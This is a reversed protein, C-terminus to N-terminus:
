VEVGVSSLVYRERVAKAAAQASERAEEITKGAAAADFFAQEAKIRMDLELAGM